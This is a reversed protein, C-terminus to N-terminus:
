DDLVKGCLNLYFFAMAFKPLGSYGDSEARALAATFCMFGKFLALIVGLGVLIFFVTYISM